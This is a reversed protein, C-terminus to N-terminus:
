GFLPQEVVSNVEQKQKEPEKLQQTQTPEAKETTYDDLTLIPQTEEPEQKKLMEPKLTAKIVHQAIGNTIQNLGAEVTKLRKLENIKKQLRIQKTIEEETQTKEEFQKALNEVKQALAEVNPNQPQIITQRIIQENATARTGFNTTPVNSTTNEPLKNNKSLINLFAFGGVVIGVFCVAGGYSVPDITLNLRIYAIAAGSFLLVLFLFVIIIDIKKSNM